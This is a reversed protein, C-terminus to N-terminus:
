HEINTDLRAADGSGLSIPNVVQGPTVKDTGEVILREGAALGNGILWQGDVARGVEVERRIVRNDPGVVFATAAGEPGRVIGASPALVASQHQAEGIVGRVYMGPLLLGALNAFRARLTVSGTDADVSAETFQLTGLEPYDSGDDLKLRVENRAPAAGGKALTRRLALLATSSEQFDVLMPQLRAITALPEAQDATVLAGSTVRSRGIRGSIPARVGAFELRLRATDLVARAQQVAAAATVDASMADAYDQDSVVGASSLDAYRKAKSRAADGLAVAKALNAQAEEVAARYLRPDIQYLLQAKEVAQGETFQRELIIGSVQPRVESTEYALTRGPLEATLLVPKAELTVISVEIPPRPLEGSERRGTCAALLLPCVFELAAARRRRLRELNPFLIGVM